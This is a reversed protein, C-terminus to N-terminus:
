DQSVVRRKPMMMIDLKEDIKNVARELNDLRTTFSGFTYAGTALSAVIGIVASWTSVWEWM